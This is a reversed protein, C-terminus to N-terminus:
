YQFHKTTLIRFRSKKFDIIGERKLESLSRSLSARDVALYSAFEERSFPIDFEYARCRESQIKLYRLIKDRISKQSLCLVHESMSIFLERQSSAM